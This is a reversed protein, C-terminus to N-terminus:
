RTWLLYGNRLVVTTITGYPDVNKFVLDKGKYSPLNRLLKEIDIVISGDKFDWDAVLEFEMGM